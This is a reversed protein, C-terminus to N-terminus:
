LLDRKGTSVWLVTTGEGDTYSDVTAGNIETSVTEVENTVAEVVPPTAQDGTTFLLFASFAVLLAATSLSVIAWFGRYGRTPREVEQRIGDMFAPFQADAIEARQSAQRAGERLLRLGAEYAKGQADLSAANGEAEGDFRRAIDREWKNM